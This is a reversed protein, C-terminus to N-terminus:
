QKISLKFAEPGTIEDTCTKLFLSPLYKNALHQRRCNLM